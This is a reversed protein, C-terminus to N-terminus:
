EWPVDGVLMWDGDGDEYVVAHEWAGYGDMLGISACCFMENLAEVLEDYDDYAAVDVKRLYPTGDMSVKVFAQVRCVCGAPRDSSILRRRCCLTFFIRKKKCSYHRLPFVHNIQTQTVCTASSSPQGNKRARRAKRATIGPPGLTLETLDVGDDGYRAM